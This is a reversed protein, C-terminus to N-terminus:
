YGIVIVGPHSACGFGTLGYPDPPSTYDTINFYGTNGNVTIIGIDHLTSDVKLGRVTFVYANVKPVSLNVIPDDCEMGVPTSVSKTAVIQNSENYIRTELFAGTHIPIVSFTATTPTSTGGGGSPGPDPQPNDKKCSTLAVAFAFALISLFKATKM